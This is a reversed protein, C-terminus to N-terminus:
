ANACVSQEHANREDYNRVGGCFDYSSFKDYGGHLSYHYGVIVIMSIIRLLEVSSNRTNKQECRLGGNQKM